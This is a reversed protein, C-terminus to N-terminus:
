EPSMEFEVTVQATITIQGPALLEDPTKHDENQQLSAFAFQSKGSPPASNQEEPANLGLAIGAFGVADRNEEVDEEIRIPLGLKMGMLGALHEAKERAYTVALKRADFQCQRQNSVRFHLQTVHSLGANFADSLFPEVTAFKTLRVQISRTFDYAIPTAQKRGYPGYDPSVDLDTVKVDTAPISHKSALALVAAAIKDNERKATVLAKDRTYVALDLLVEDPPVKIESRASVKVSRTEAGLVVSCMLPLAALIFAKM